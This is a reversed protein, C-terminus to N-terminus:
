VDAAAPRASCDRLQRRLVASEASGVSWDASERRRSRQSGPGAPQVAALVERPSYTPLATSRWSYWGAIFRSGGCKGVSVIGTSV